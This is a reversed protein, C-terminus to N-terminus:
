PRRCHSKVIDVCSHLPQCTVEYDRSDKGCYPGGASVYAQYFEESPECRRTEGSVCNDLPQCEVEYDRADKGCFPGGADVYADYPGRAKKSEEQSSGGPSIKHCSCSLVALALIVCFTTRGM